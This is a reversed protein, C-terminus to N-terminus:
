ESENLESELEKRYKDDPPLVSIAMNLDKKAEGDSLSKRIRYRLHLFAPKYKQDKLDHLGKNIAELAADAQKLGLLAQAKRQWWFAERKIASAEDLLVNADDFRELLILAEAHQITYYSNGAVISKYTEDAAILFERRRSDGIDTVKAAAKHAQAWDFRESDSTPVADRWEISDFMRSILQPMTFWTKQAVKAILRLAFARDLERAKALTSMIIAEYPALDKSTGITAVLHLAELLVPVSVPVEAIEHQNVINKGEELADRKRGTKELIRGLQLRGASFTPDQSLISRFKSEAEQLKGLRVLMKAYHHNIGRLLEGNAAPSGRLLELAAINQQLCTRATEAGQNASTITYSAEIAEIVARIELERGNWQDYAAIERAVAVPEGLLELPTDSTRALAVAYVFSPRPDSLLLRKLLPSHFSVIRHLVSRDNKCETCIFSDLKDRFTAERQASVDIVACISQYVVDHVRIEGSVTASLFGRKQLNSVARNSVCVSALEFDFRSGGCWKVFELEVALADRHRMLIRQCVKNHREDEISSVAEECCAEVAEWGEDKALRNLAALLLPYGGISLFVREFVREPCTTSIGAELLVRAADYDLDGVKISKPVSTTQCTLIVKSEGCEMGAIHDSSLLADDLILLCKHRRILSSINHRTGTRRVETDSLEAVNKLDHADYWIVADYNPRLKQAVHAALATKGIGSIGTIVVCCANTLRNIVIRELEPRSQYDSYIPIRHSFANEDALRGISPLYSTLTSVLRETELNDYIHEAIKRADLIDVNKLSEHTKIFETALNACKTTEGAEAERSSLLWIHSADPHLSLAHRLDRKPKALDGHFYDSDSSMEAILTSGEASTDVTYGRPAGEVTTGREVWPVPHIVGMMRYCFQEFQGGTLVGIEDILTGIVRKRFSDSM